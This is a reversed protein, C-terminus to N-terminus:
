SARPRPKPSGGGFAAVLGGPLAGLLTTVRVLVALALVVSPNGAAAFYLLYLEEMVGIGGPTIPIASIILILPVHLVYHMWSVEIGLAVGLLFVFISGLAQAVLSVLFARALAAPHARFHALADGAREVHTAIPLRKYIRQLGCLRRLRASLLFVLTAGIAALVVAVSPASFRVLDGELRGTARLVLLMVAATGAMACVGMLRDAFATVLVHEKRTTRKMVCYAKVLDGGVMGPIVTSFFEGLLQLKFSEGITIRVDQVALLLRWRLATVLMSALSVVFAAVLWRVDANGLCSLVGPYTVVQGADDTVPYDRWHVQSIVFGLIALALVVRVVRWLPHRAKGAVLQSAQSM